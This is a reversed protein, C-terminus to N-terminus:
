WAYLPMELHILQRFRSWSMVNDVERNVGTVVAIESTQRAASRTAPTSRAFRWRSRANAMKQNKMFEANSDVTM